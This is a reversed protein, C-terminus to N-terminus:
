DNICIMCVSLVLTVVNIVDYVNDLLGIFLAHINELCCNYFYSMDCKEHM